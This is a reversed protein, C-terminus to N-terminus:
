GRAFCALLSSIAFLMEERKKVIQKRPHAKSRASNKKKQLKEVGKNNV